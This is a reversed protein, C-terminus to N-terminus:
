MAIVKSRSKNLATEVLVSTYDTTENLPSHAVYLVLVYNVIYM